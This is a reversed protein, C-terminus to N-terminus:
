PEVEDHEIYRPQDCQEDHVYFAGGDNTTSFGRVGEWVCRSAFNSFDDPMEVAYVPNDPDDQAIWEVPADGRGRETKHDEWWTPYAYAFIFVLGALLAVVGTGIAVYFTWRYTYDSRSWFTGSM